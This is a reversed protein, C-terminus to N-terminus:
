FFDPEYYQENYNDTDEEREPYENDFDDTQEYDEQEEYGEEADLRADEALCNMEYQEADDYFGEDYENIEDYM